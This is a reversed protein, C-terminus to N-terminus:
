KGCSRLNMKIETKFLRCGETVFRLSMLIYARRKSSYICTYLTLMLKYFTILDYFCNRYGPVKAKVM